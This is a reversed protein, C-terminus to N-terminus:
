VPQSAHRTTPAPLDTSTSYSAGPLRSTPTEGSRHRTSFVARSTSSPSYHPSTNAPGPDPTAMGSSSTSSACSACAEGAPSSCEFPILRAPGETTDLIPLMPYERGASMNRGYQGLRGRSRWAETKAIADRLALGRRWLHYLLLYQSHHRSGPELLGSDLLAEGRRYASPDPELDESACKEEPASRTSSRGSTAALTGIDFPDLKKFRYLLAQWDLLEKGEDLCRQGPGFSLRICLTKQPYLEFGLRSAAPNLRKRFLKLTPPHDRFTPMFILHYHGERESACLMSNSADMGLATRIVEVEPMTRGDLDILGHGPYWRGLSSISFRGELHAQVLDTTLIGKVGRWDEGPWKIGYRPVPQVFTEIYEGLGQDAPAIDARHAEHITM